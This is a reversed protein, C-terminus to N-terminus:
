GGRYESQIEDAVLQPLDILLNGGEAVRGKAGPPVVTTAGEEYIVMPGEFTDGPDLSGRPVVSSNIATDSLGFYSEIRTSEGTSRRSEAVPARPLV